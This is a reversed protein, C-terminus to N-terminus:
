GHMGHAVAAIRAIEDGFETTVQRVGRDALWEHEAPGVHRVTGNDFLAYVEARDKHRMMLYPMPSEEQGTPRGAAIWAAIQDGPCQTANVDRHGGWALPSGKLASLVGHLQVLTRAAATTFDGDRGIFCVGIGETNHGAAHAGIALWGGARGLYLAGAQNVLANYGIDAWGRDDMQFDQITRVPQDPPGASYHVRLTQRKSWTTMVPAREPPRAGWAARPILPLPM